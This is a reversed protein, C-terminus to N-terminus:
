SAPAPQDPQQLGGFLAPRAQAEAFAGCDPSLSCDKCGFFSASRQVGAAGRGDKSRLELDALREALVLGREILAIDVAMKKVAGLKPMVAAVFGPAIGTALTTAMGEFALIEDVVGVANVMVLVTESSQGKPNRRGYLADVRAEILMARDPLYFRMPPGDVPPPRIAEAEYDHDRVTELLSAVWGGARAALLARVAPTQDKMWADVFDSDPKADDITNAMTSRVARQVTTVGDDSVYRHFSRVGLWRTAKFIDWGDFGGLGTVRAECDLMTTLGFNALRVRESDDADGYRGPATQMAVPALREAAWERAYQGIERPSRDTM